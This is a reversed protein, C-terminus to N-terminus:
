TPVNNTEVLAYVVWAGFFTVIKEVNAVWRALDERNACDVLEIDRFIVPSIYGDIFRIGCVCMIMIPAGDGKSWDGLDLAMITIIFFMGGLIVALAPFHRTSVWISLLSGLTLAIYSLEIAL